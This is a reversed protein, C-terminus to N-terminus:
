TLYALTEIMTDTIRDQTMAHIVEVLRLRLILNDTAQIAVLVEAEHMLVFEIPARHIIATIAIHM